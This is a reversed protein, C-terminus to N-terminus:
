RVGGCGYARLQLHGRAPDLARGRRHRAADVGASPAHPGAARPLAHHQRQAGANRCGRRCQSWSTRGPHVGLLCGAGAGGRGCGRSGSVPARRAAGRSRAGRRAVVGSPPCPIAAPWPPPQARAQAFGRVAVFSGIAPGCVFRGQPAPARVGGARRRRGRGCGGGSCGVHPSRVRASPRSGRRVSSGPRVRVVELMVGGCIDAVRLDSAGRLHM